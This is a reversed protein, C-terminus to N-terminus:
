ISGRHGGYQQLDGQKEGMSDCKGRIGGGKGMSNTIPGGPVPFVEVM